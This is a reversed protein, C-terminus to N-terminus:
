RTARRHRWFFLIVVAILAGLIVLNFDRLKHEVLVWNDGLLTGLWTFLISWLLAGLTTYASFTKWNMGAIGAPFSIYTRVVPLLRGFFVTADGHKAFWREAMDLDRHSILIYKGYRELLPRGGARGIAYAALSGVLNGLTGMAVVVWFNLKGTSVVFGAFPMIIESPVPLGGSELAMLLFVGPYGLVSITATIAQMLLTIITAFM